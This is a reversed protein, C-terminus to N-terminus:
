KARLAPCFLHSPTGAMARLPSPATPVGLLHAPPNNQQIAGRRPPMCAMGTLRCRRQAPPTFHPEPHPKDINASLLAAAPSSWRGKDRRGTLAAVGAQGRAVGCSAQTARWALARLRWACSMFSMMWWPGRIGGAGTRPRGAGAVWVYTGRWQERCGGRPTATQRYQGPEVTTAQVQLLRLALIFASAKGEAKSKRQTLSAM